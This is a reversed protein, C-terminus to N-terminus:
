FPPNQRIWIPYAFFQKPSPALANGPRSGLCRERDEKVASRHDALRLCKVSQEHDLRLGSIGSEVVDIPLSNDLAPDELLSRSSVSHVRVFCDDGSPKRSIERDIGASCGMKSTSLCRASDWRQLDWSAMSIM